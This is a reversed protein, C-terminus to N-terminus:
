KDVVIHSIKVIKRGAKWTARDIISVFAFAEGDLTSHSVDECVAM